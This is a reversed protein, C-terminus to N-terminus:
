VGFQKLHHCFHKYALRGWQDGSLPGFIPHKGTLPLPGNEVLADLEGLLAERQAEFEEANVEPTLYAPAKVGKPLPIPGIFAWAILSRYLSSGPAKRQADPYALQLAERLHRMLRAADLKGWRPQTDPTVAALRANLEDLSGGQFVSRTM